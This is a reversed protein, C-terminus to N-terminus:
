PTAGRHAAVRAAMRAGAVLAEGISRSELWCVTFAAQFADGCGTTDVVREALTPQHWREGGVFAYAGHAGATLVVPTPSRASLAQLADADSSKGGVFALALRDIEAGLWVSPDARDGAPSDESFDAVLKAGLGADRCQTYVRRSERSCPVAVADFGSLECLESPELEYSPMVGSEFGSFVREGGPAVRIKQLATAGGLTRVRLPAIDTEALLALLRRGREDDGIPAYLAAAAGQALACRAFNVSIGGLFCAGDPLYEDQTIEGVAAIRIRRAM